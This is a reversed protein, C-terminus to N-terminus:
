SRAKGLLKHMHSIEWGFARALAQLALGEQTGIGGGAWSANAAVMFAAEREEASACREAISAIVADKGDVEIKTAAARVMANVADAGIEGDSLDSMREAIHALEDAGTSGDASAIITAAEICASLKSQSTEEEAVAEEIMQKQKQIMDQFSPMGSLMGKAASM